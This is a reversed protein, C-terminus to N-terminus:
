KRRERGNEGSYGYERVKGKTAGSPGACWGRGAGKASRMRLCKESM